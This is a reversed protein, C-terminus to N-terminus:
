GRSNIAQRWEPTIESRLVSMFIFSTSSPYSSEKTVDYFQMMATKLHTFFVDTKGISAGAWLSRLYRDLVGALQASKTSFKTYPLFRKYTAEMNFLPTVRTKYPYENADNSTAAFKIVKTQDTMLDELDCVHVFLCKDSSISLAKHNYNLFQRIRGIDLDGASVAIVVDDGPLIDARTAVRGTEVPKPSKRVLFFRVNIPDDDNGVFGGEQAFNNAIRGDSDIM